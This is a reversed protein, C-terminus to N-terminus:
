QSTLQTQTHRTPSKKNIDLWFGGDYLFAIIFWIFLVLPILVTVMFSKTEDGLHMFVKVIYAAKLLTLALFFFAILAKPMAHSFFMGLCVEVVTIVLLIWFVKWIRGMQKKSETSKVDHGFHHNMIGSYLKSQDGEYYHQNSNDSHNQSM